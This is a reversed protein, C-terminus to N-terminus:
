MAKPEIARGVEETNLNLNEGEIPPLLPSGRPLLFCSKASLWVWQHRSPSGPRWVQSMTNRNRLREWNITNQKLFAFWGLVASIQFPFVIKKIDKTHKM